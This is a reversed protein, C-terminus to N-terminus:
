EKFNTFKLLKTSNFNPGSLAFVLYWKVDKLYNIVYILINIHEGAVSRGNVKTLTKTDNSLCFDM